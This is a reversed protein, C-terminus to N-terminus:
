YEELETPRRLAAGACTPAAMTEVREAGRGLRCHERGPGVAVVREVGEVTRVPTHGQM